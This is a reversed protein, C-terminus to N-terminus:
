KLKGASYIYIYATKGCTLSLLGTYSYTTSGSPSHYGYTFSAEFCGFFLQLLRGLVTNSM